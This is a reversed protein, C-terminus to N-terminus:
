FLAVIMPLLNKCVEALKSAESLPEAIAKLNAAARKAIRQM